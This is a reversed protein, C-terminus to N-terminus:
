STLLTDNVFIKIFDSSYLRENVSIENSSETFKYYKIYSPPLRIGNKYVITNEESRGDPGSPNSIQEVFGNYEFSQTYVDSYEDGDYVVVYVSDGTTISPIKIEYSTL